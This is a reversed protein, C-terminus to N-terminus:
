VFSDSRRDDRTSAVRIQEAGADEFIREVMQVDAEAYAHVGLLIGGGKLGTEYVKARYEPIGSGVLAGILSGTAGGAGAGALAAAIPGAVILGIGPLTLTTGVAAIAALTAGVAGGVVSGVGAGVAAQTGSEITFHQRRTEDSMLMSIDDRTYGWKLLRQVAAEADARTKVLGTVLKQMAM